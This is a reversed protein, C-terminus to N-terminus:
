VPTRAPPRAPQPPRSPAPSGAQLRQRTGCAADAHPSDAPSVLAAVAHDVELAQAVLLPGRRLGEGLLDDVHSVVRAPSHPTRARGRARATAGATAGQEGAAPQGHLDASMARTAPPLRLRQIMAVSFMCGPSLM